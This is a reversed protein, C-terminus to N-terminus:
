PSKQQIKAVTETNLGLHTLLSSLDSNSGSSAWILSEQAIHATFLELEQENFQWAPPTWRRVGGANQVRSELINSIM